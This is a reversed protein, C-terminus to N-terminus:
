GLEARRPPDAGPRSCNIAAARAALDLAGAIAADDGSDLRDRHLLGHDRLGALLGAHFTDGAGVTDAVDVRRGPIEVVHDGYRAM